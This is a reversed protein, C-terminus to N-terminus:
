DMSACRAGGGDDVCGSSGWQTCDIAERRGGSVCALLSTGDCTSVCGPSMCFAGDTESCRGPGCVTRDTYGDACHVAVDGDCFDSGRECAELSPLCRGWGTEADVHCLGPGCDQVVERGEAEVCTFLRDGDCRSETCSTESGCAFNGNDICTLGEGSCDRAVAVGAFCSELVDGACSPGSDACTAASDVHACRLAAGCDAAAVVCAGLTVRASSLGDAGLGMTCADYGAVTGRFTEVDLDACGSLRACALEIDSVLEVTPTSSTSCGGVWALLALGCWPLRHSMM